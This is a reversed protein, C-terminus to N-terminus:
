MKVRAEIWSIVDAIVEEKEPEYLLDHLLKPYHKCTKDTSGADRFFTDSGEPLCIADADGTLILFPLDFFRAERQIKECTLIAQHGMNIKMRGHYSLPDNNINEVVAPDRSVFAGGLPGTVGMKPLIDALSRALFKLMPTAEKPNIYLCPASLIVGAWQHAKRTRSLFGARIAVAGGMSHGIIFRPLSPSIKGRSLVTEVLLLLDEAFDDWREAYAREGESHGHGQLDIGFVALGAANLAAAVHEYRGIHEGYGHVMFVAGRAKCSTPLWTYSHLLIGHKNLFKSPWLTSDIMARAQKDVLQIQHAASKNSVAILSLITNGFVYVM